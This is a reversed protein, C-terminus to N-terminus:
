MEAVLAGCLARCAMKKGVFGHVVGDSNRTLTIQRWTGAQILQQSYDFHSLDYPYLSESYVYWGEDADLNDFDVLKRYSSVTDLNVLFVFTYTKGPSGMVKTAKRLKLGDGTPWDWVGNNTGGIM